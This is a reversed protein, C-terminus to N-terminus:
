LFLPQTQKWARGSGNWIHMIKYYFQSYFAENPSSITSAGVTFRKTIIKRSQDGYRRFKTTAQINVLYFLSIQPRVSQRLLVYVCIWIFIVHGEKRWTSYVVVHLQSLCATLLLRHFFLWSTHSWQYISCFISIRMGSRFPPVSWPPIIKCVLFLQEGSVGSDHISVQRIPFSFYALSRHCRLLGILRWVWFFLWLSTPISKEHFELPNHVVAASCPM